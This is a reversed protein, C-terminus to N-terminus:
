NKRFIDSDFRLLIQDEHITIGDSLEFIQYGVTNSRIKKIVALKINDPTLQYKVTDGENYVKM